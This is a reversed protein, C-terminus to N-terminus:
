GPSWCHAFLARASVHLDFNAFAGGAGYGDYPRYSFVAFYLADSAVLGTLASSGSGTLGQDGVQTVSWSIM